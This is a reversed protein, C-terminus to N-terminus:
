VITDAVLEYYSGFDDAKVLRGLKRFERAIGLVVTETTIASGAAAAIFGAHVAANRIVGGAIEFSDAVWDLDIEDLPASKPFMGRWIARREDPGPINFEVRVHIRRM